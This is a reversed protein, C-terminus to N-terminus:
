FASPNYYMEAVAVYKDRESRMGLRGGLAAEPQVVACATLLRDSRM